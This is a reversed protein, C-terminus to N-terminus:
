SRWRLFEPLARLTEAASLVKTHSYGRTKLVMTGESIAAIRDAEEHRVYRDDMDYILLLKGNCARFADGEELDNWNSQLESALYRRFEEMVKPPPRLQSEVARTPPFPYSPTAICVYREAQITGARRAAMMALGSASHGVYAYVPAGLEDALAAANRGFCSWATVRGPSDGHGEVDIAVARYGANAVALALPAMQAARGGWGHILVVPPGSGWSWAVMRNGPGYVLKAGCALAAHETPRISARKVRNSLSITLRTAARTPLLRVALRALTQIM